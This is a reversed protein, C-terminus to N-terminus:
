SLVDGDAPRAPRTRRPDIHISTRLLWRDFGDYRPRFATRGHMALRNDVIALDGSRLVFTREVQDFAHGLEDIAAAAGLDLGSTTAFDIQVDPDSPDGELIPRAGTVSIYDGFSAPPTTIFRPEFLIARTENSLLPLARRISSTRLGAVDDHDNRLCLLAVYDPKYSHFGNEIHMKLTVSGANGQFDEQGPVPVVNQVLAGSKEQRFATIDGIQMCALVLASAYPTPIREVSGPVSPTGPLSDIPLGRVLLVGEPGPSRRFRRLAVRLTLPLECSLERAREVWDRTDIRADPDATLDDTLRRIASREEDTLQITTPGGCTTDLAPNRIESQTTM